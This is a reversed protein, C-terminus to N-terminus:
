MTSGVPPGIIALPLTGSITSGTHRGPRAFWRPRMSPCAIEEVLNERSLAEGNQVNVISAHGIAALGEGQWDLM